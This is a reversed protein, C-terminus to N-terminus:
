VDGGFSGERHSPSEVIVGIAHLERALAIADENTPVPIEFAERDLIRDTIAKGDRLGLGTAKRVAKTCSTKKM